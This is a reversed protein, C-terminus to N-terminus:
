WWGCCGGGSSFWGSGPSLWSWFVGVVWWLLVSLNVEVPNFGSWLFSGRRWECWIGDWLSSTM